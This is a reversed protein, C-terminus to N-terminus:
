QDKDAYVEVGILYLEKHKLLKSFAASTIANKFIALPNKCNL